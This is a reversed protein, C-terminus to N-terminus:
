YAAGYRPYIMDTVSEFELDDDHTRSGYDDGGCGPGDQWGFWECGQNICDGESNYMGCGDAGDCPECDECGPGSTGYWDCGENSLCEGESYYSGCGDAGDCPECGEDEFDNMGPLLLYTLETTYDEGTATISGEAESMGSISGPNM